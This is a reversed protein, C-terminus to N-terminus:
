DLRPATGTHEYRMLGCHLSRDRGRLLKTRRGAHHQRVDRGRRLRAGTSRWTLLVLARASVMAYSGPSTSGSSEKQMDTRIILDHGGGFIPGYRAYHYVASADSKSNMRLPTGAPARPGRLSFVYASADQKTVNGVGWPVLAYGGFVNGKKSRVVTLTASRGDCKAHFAAATFGDRSGRYLLSLKKAAADGRVRQLDAVLAVDALIM